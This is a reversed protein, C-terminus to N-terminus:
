PCRLMVVLSAASARPMLGTVTRAAILDPFSRATRCPLSQCMVGAATSAYREPDSPLGPLGDLFGGDVTVPHCSHAFGAMERESVAFLGGPILLHGMSEAHHRLCREVSM